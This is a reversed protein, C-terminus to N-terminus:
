PTPASIARDLLVIQANRANSGVFILEYRHGNRSDAFKRSALTHPDEPLTVRLGWSYGPGTTTVIQDGKVWLPNASPAIPADTVIPVVYRIFFNAASAGAYRFAIKGPIAAGNPPIEGLGANDFMVIEPDNKAVVITLDQAAALPFTKSSIVSGRCQRPDTAYVRLTKSGISVVNKFVTKGYRLGSKIENGDLCVDVTRGPIGNVIALTGTTDAGAVPMGIVSLAMTVLAGAIVLRIRRV